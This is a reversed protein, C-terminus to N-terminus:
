SKRKTNDNVFKNFASDTSENPSIEAQTLNKHKSQNPAPYVLINKNSQPPGSSDRKASPDEGQLQQKNNM